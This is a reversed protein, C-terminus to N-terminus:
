RGHALRTGLAQACVEALTALQRRLPRPFEALPERWCVEMAGLAVGPRAGAGPQVPLPLVARAGGPWPGILPATEGAPRGAPWWSDLGSRAARQAVGDMDPHIRRWRSAERARFGAEGALELGGDPEAVWLAVAAAGAPALAAAAGALAVRAESGTGPGPEPRPAPHPVVEGTIQAALELISTDSERSLALLQEQAQAASCRLREMLVGRALDVVARAAAQAELRDLERRQRAILASLRLFEDG